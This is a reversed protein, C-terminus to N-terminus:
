SMEADAAGSAQSGGLAVAVVQPFGAFQTALKYALEQPTMM